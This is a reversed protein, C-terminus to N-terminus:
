ILAFGIFHIRRPKSSKIPAMKKSLRITTDATSNKSDRIRQSKVPRLGDIKIAM